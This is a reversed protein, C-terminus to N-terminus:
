SSECQVKYNQHLKLVILLDEPQSMYTNLSRMLQIFGKSVVM